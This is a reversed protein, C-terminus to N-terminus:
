DFDLQPQHQVMFLIQDVINTIEGNNKIRERVLEEKASFPVRNQFASLNEEIDYFEGNTSVIVDAIPYYYDLHRLQAMNLPNSKDSNRLLYDQGPELMVITGILSTLKQTQKLLKETDIKYDRSVAKGNLVKWGFSAPLDFIIPEKVRKLIEELMINCTLQNIAISYEPNNSSTNCFDLSRYYIQAFPKLDKLLEKYNLYIDFIEDISEQQKKIEEDTTGYTGKQKIFTEISNKVCPYVIEPSQNTLFENNTVIYVLIDISIVPMGTKISIEKAILSKGVCAPGILSISQGINTNKEM